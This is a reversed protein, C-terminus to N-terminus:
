QSRLSAIENRAVDARGAALDGRRSRWAESAAEVDERRCNWQPIAADCVAVSRERSDAGRSSLVIEALHKRSV